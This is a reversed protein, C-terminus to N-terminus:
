PTEQGAAIIAACESEPVISDAIAKLEDYLAKEQELSERKRREEERHAAYERWKRRKESRKSV